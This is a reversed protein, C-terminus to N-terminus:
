SPNNLLEEFKALAELYKNQHFLCEGILLNAESLKSSNPYNILLRELLGLSVDYFGDDFAKRAVFLAEEEKASEQAFSYHCIGFCLILSLCFICLDITSLRYDIAKHKRNSWLGYVLVLLGKAKNKIQLKKM